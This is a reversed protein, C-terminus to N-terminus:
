QSLMRAIRILDENVDVKHKRAESFPTFVVQNHVLGAAEAKRGNILGETAAVGLRSALVRDFCTPSGGRQM